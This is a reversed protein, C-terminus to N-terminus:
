TLGAGSIKWVTISAKFIVAVGGDALTRSGTSNDKSLKLTDDIIAITLTGGGDNTFGILTGVPFNVSSDAPITHTEGAGGSEKAITKGKDELVLTYDSNQVNILSKSPDILQILDADNTFYPEDSTSWIPPKGRIGDLKDLRDAIYGLSFNLSNRIEEITSGTILYNGKSPM